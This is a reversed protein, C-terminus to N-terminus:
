VRCLETGYLAEHDTIKRWEEISDYGFIDLTARNAYLTEGKESVIRVGLPSEDLSRRFNEESSRLAEEEEKRDTIDIINGMVKTIKGDEFVPKGITRVWKQMGDAANFRCEIDYPEGTQVANTFAQEIIQQDEGSYFSIAKGIDNPDYSKGVGYIRYVEETWTIRKKMSIM